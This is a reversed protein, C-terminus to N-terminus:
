MSATAVLITVALVLSALLIFMVAMPWRSLAVRHTPYELPWTGENAAESLLHPTLPILPFTRGHRNVPRGESGESKYHFFGLIKRKDIAYHQAYSALFDEAEAGRLHMAELLDGNDSCRIESSVFGSAFEVIDSSSVM